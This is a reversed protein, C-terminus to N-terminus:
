FIYSVSALARHNFVNTLNTGLGNSQITGYSASTLDYELAFKLNPLNYSVHPAIRYLQNMISQPKANFGYGYSLYKGSSTLLLDTNTGLNQSYGCLIGVQITSGYVM